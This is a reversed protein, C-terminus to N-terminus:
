GVLLCFPHGEPDGIVYLPEGPDDSRDMLVRAGLQEARARHTELADVDPVRFDMHLQMPVEESPWTSPRLDPKAQVALVRLGSQDLLVLWDAEDAAPAAPPEDGPRYRLALLERYFEALARPDRADLATHLLEPYASM